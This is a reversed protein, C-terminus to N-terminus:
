KEIGQENLLSLAMYIKKKQGLAWTQRLALVLDIFRLQPSTDLSNIWADDPALRILTKCQFMERM